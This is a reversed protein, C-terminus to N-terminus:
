GGSGGSGGFIVRETMGSVARRRTNSASRVDGTEGPFRSDYAGRTYGSGHRHVVEAAVLSAERACYRCLEQGEVPENFHCEICAAAPEVVPSSKPLSM